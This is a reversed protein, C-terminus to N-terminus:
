VQNPYYSNLFQWVQLLPKCCKEFTNPWDEQLFLAVEGPKTTSIYINGTIQHRDATNGITAMYFATQIKHEPWSGNKPLKGTTKFDPLCITNGNDLLIDARGAYGEGVIHRESWIVKGLSEVVPLVAEVYPRWEDDFPLGQICCEIADHIATGRDSAVKSEQDQIKEVNLVRNIFEDIPEGENRPTTMVAMVAQETLWNNLAPKNLVRIISTVSPLLNLIRADALTPTKMGEGTKKKLEYCPKGDPFYWRSGESRRTIVESM